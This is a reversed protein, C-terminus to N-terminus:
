VCIGRNKYLSTVKSGVGTVNAVHESPLRYHRWKVAQMYVSRLIHYCTTCYTTAITVYPYCTKVAECSDACNKLILAMNQFEFVKERVSLQANSQRFTLITIYYPNRYLVVERLINHLM